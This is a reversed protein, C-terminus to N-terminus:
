NIVHSVIAAVVACVVGAVLAVSSFNFFPPLHLVTVDLIWGAAGGLVFATAATQNVTEKKTM